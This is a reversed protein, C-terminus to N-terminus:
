KMGVSIFHAFQKKSDIKLKGDCSMDERLQVKHSKKVTTREPAEEAKWKESMNIDKPHREVNGKVAVSVGRRVRDEAIRRLVEEFRTNRRTEMEAAEQSPKPSAPSIGSKFRKGAYPNKRKKM